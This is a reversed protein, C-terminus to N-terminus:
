FLDVAFHQHPFDTQVLPTSMAWQCLENLCIFNKFGSQIKILRCWSAKTWFIHGKILHTVRKPPQWWQVPHSFTLIIEGPPLPQDWLNGVELPSTMKWWWSSGRTLCTKAENIRRLPQFGAQGEQNWYQKVNPCVAAVVCHVTPAPSGM